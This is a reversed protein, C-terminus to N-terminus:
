GGASLLNDLRIRSQKQFRQLVYSGCHCTVAVIARLQWLSVYSGCHCTVAVIARLQWLPVYSGCHCTVALPVYSCLAERGTVVLIQCRRPRYRSLQQYGSQQGRLLIFGEVYNSRLQANM